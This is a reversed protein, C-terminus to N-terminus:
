GGELTRGLRSGGALGDHQTPSELKAGFAHGLHAAELHAARRMVVDAIGAIRDQDHEVALLLELEHARGDVQQRVGSFNRRHEDDANRVGIAIAVHVGGNRGARRREQCEDGVLENRSDIAVVASPRIPDQEPV